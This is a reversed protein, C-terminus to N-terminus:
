LIGTEQTYDIKTGVSGMRMESSANGGLMPRDQVLIVKAGHRAASVAACVGALGGGCVVIDASLEVKTKVTSNQETLMASGNGDTNSQHRCSTLPMAVALMAAVIKVIFKM